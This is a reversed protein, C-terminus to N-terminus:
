PQVELVVDYGPDGVLCHCDPPGLGAVMQEQVKEVLLGWDGDRWNLGLCTTVDWFLHWLIDTAQRVFNWVLHQHLASLCSLRVM